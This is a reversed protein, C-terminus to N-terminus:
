WVEWDVVDTENRTTPVQMGATLETVRKNVYQKLASITVHPNKQMNELISYTFVGNRLDNKELAYQVGGAASIITAGTSKGVNVFLQKMLEYSSQMSLGPKEVLGVEAGKHGEDKVGNKKREDATQTYRNMEDKDLEGSHCADILMLKKRAPISDLLNELADYPLGNKAPDKFNVNYTSLYYDYDKSLLGHGSYALVVKDNVNSKLLKKKLAIVSDKTVNENFLTDITCKDKYREKFKDALDHIDKVSWNLSYNKDAFNNIGIGVFHMLSDVPKDPNYKVYLPMHYSETGNADTVSTEIRNDGQSLTITVTTDLNSKNRNKLSVGRIGYVPVQNVWVNFRDLHYTSDSGSIHLSLQDNKQEPEQEIQDRNLFDSKPVSYGSKFQTTDIGLKKIRKEYARYYSHILATDPCGIAELVKDPRNYKIDLQDFTIVELNKTVYHLLKAANPTCMYYGGPVQSFYDTSDVAFFTYILRYTEANWIKCTNDTSATVITKEDPSFEAYYVNGTHGKLDSVTGTKGNWVKATIDSSTTVLKHGDPSFRTSKIWGGADQKLDALLKGTESDWIQVSQYSSTGIKKGDPSFQAFIVKNTHGHLFVLIKGTEVDSIKVSDRLIIVIKKGDLSFQALDLPRIGDLYLLRKGTEADWAAIATGGKSLTFVKKGDLSFRASIATGVDETLNVAFKGKEFDFIKVTDKCILLMKKKDPSFQMLYTDFVSENKKPLREGTEADWTVESAWERYNTIIKKGDPSFHVVDVAKTHGKLDIIVKGTEADWIKATNDRSGTVIKKGDRSFRALYVEDSHGILEAIPKGTEANWIKASRNDISATVIKRNDPSFEASSIDGAHGKLDALLTGTLWDWIKATSDSLITFIIKGNPSIQVDKIPNDRVEWATLPNGTEADWTKIAHNKYSITVISKGGPLFHASYYEDNDPQFHMLSEGSEADWIKIKEGNAAALIKKGDPSFEAYPFIVDGPHGKFDILLQGEQSDWIKINGKQTSIVVKKGDPSFAADEIGIGHGMILNTLLKGTEADWIKATDDFPVTVIKKGDPSLKAFNLSRLKLDVLLSGTAADWIKVTQDNSATVIRKGDPSFRAYNVDGTHGIPLVM